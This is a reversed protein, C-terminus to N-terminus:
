IESLDKRSTERERQRMKGREREEEKNLVVFIKKV